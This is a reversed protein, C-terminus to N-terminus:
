AEITETGQALKLNYARDYFFSFRVDTHYLINEDYLNSVINPYALVMSGCVDKIIAKLKLEYGDDLLDFITGRVMVKSDSNKVTDFYYGIFKGHSDLEIGYILPLEDNRNVENSIGQDVSVGVNNIQRDTDDGESFLDQLEDLSNLNMFDKSFEKEGAFKTSSQKASNQQMPSSEILNSSELFQKKAAERVQQIYSIVKASDIVSFINPLPIAHSIDHPEQHLYFNAMQIGDRLRTASSKYLGVMHIVTPSILRNLQLTADQIDMGVSSQIDVKYNESDGHAYFLFKENKPLFYIAFREAYVLNNSLIVSILQDDRDRNGSFVNDLIRDISFEIEKGDVDTAKLVVKTRLARAEVDSLPRMEGPGLDRDAVPATVSFQIGYTKRLTDLASDLDYIQLYIYREHGAYDINSIGCTADFQIRKRLNAIMRNLDDNQPKNKPRVQLRPNYGVHAVYWEM